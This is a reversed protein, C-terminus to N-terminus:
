EPKHHDSFFRDDIQDFADAFAGERLMSGFKKAVRRNIFERVAIAVAPSKKKEGTLALLDKLQNDDIDVTIRM